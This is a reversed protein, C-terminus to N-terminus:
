LMLLNWRWQLKYGLAWVDWLNWLLPAGRKPKRPLNFSTPRRIGTNSNSLRWHWPSWLLWLYRLLPSTEEQGSKRWRQWSISINIYLGLHEGKSVPIRNDHKAPFLSELVFPLGYPFFVPFGSFPFPNLPPCILHGRGFHQVQTPLHYLVTYSAQSRLMGMNGFPLQLSRGTMILKKRMAMLRQRVCWKWKWSWSKM